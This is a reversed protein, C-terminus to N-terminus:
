KGKIRKKEMEKTEGWEGDEGRLTEERIEKKMVGRIGDERM